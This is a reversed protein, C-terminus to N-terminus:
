KILRPQTLLASVCDVKLAQHLYLGEAYPVGAMLGLAAALREAYPGVKQSVHAKCAAMKEEMVGSVDFLLDPRARNTRLDAGFYLLAEYHWDSGDQSHKSLGAAFAAAQTIHSAAVHDPHYDEPHLTLLLRPAAERLPPILRQVAEQTFALAADPFDLQRFFSLHLMAAGQRAEEKRTQAEARGSAAGDTLIILGTKLGEKQALLFIGGACVELDDPHACVALLDIM